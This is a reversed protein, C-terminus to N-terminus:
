KSVGRIRIDDYQGMDDFSGVGIRGSKFHDDVATM